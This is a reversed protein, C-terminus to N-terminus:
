SRGRSHRAALLSVKIDRSPLVELTAHSSMGLFGEEDERCSVCWFGWGIVVAAGLVWVGQM